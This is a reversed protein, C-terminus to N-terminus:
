ETELVLRPAFNLHDASCLLYNVGNHKLISEKIKNM